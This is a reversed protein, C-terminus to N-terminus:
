SIANVLTLFVGDTWRFEQKHHNAVRHLDSWTQKNEGFSPLEQAEQCLGQTKGTAQLMLQRMVYGDSKGALKLRAIFTNVGEWFSLEKEALVLM